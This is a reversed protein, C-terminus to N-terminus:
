ADAKVVNLSALASQMDELMEEVTSILTEFRFESEVELLLSGGVREMRIHLGEPLNVNDPYLAVYLAKILRQDDSTLELTIKSKM